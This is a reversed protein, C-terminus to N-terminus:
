KRIVRISRSFNSNYVRVIYIGAAMQSIDVSSQYRCKTKRLVIRGMSNYLDIDYLDDYDPAINFENETLTPWVFIDPEHSNDGTEVYVYISDSTKTGCTGSVIVKYLGIDEANMQPIFHVPINSVELLRGDKEWQYNLNHGEASVDLAFDDGFAIMTENSVSLINTLPHVTVETNESFVTGCYGSIITKYVGSNDTSASSFIIEDQNRNQLLNDNKYWEYILNHGEASVNIILPQMACLVIDDSQNILRTNKVLRTRLVSWESLVDEINVQLKISANGVYDNHWLVTAKNSDWTITGADAPTLKWAYAAAGSLSEISYSGKNTNQCIVSDGLPKMPVYEEKIGTKSRIWSGFSSVRTYGGFSNCSSNGWSVIGALKYEDSVDVILPGGSDGNCADRTGNLYGAMIVTSPINKYVFSATLNSVIPVQVKQLISPLVKPDVKTLGWGTVWAMVGPDTAGEKVNYASVLKIPRANEDIVPRKLRLLAIDYELTTNDYKEHVIVESIGYKKRETATYPNNTGAIVSMETVSTYGGSKNKTCHAATLIWEDSIITGGCMYDGSLFYVQWPFESINANAGGTIKAQDTKVGTFFPFFHDGPENASGIILKAEGGIKVSYLSTDSNYIEYFSIQLYYRRDADLVIIVPDDGPYMYSASVPQYYENLVQWSSSSAHETKVIEVNVKQANLFSGTLLLFPIVLIRKM